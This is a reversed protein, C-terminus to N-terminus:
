LTSHEDAFAGFKKNFANWVKAAEAAKHVKEQRAGNQKTLHATARQEAVVSLKTTIGKTQSALYESRQGLSRGM